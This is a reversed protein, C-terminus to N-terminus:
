RIIKYVVGQPIIERISICYIYAINKIVMELKFLCPKIGPNSLSCHGVHVIDLELSTSIFGSSAAKKILKVKSGRGIPYVACHSHFHFNSM